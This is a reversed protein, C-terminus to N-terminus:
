GSSWLPLGMVGRSCIFNLASTVSEPSKLKGTGAYSLERPLCKTSWSHGSHRKIVWPSIILTRTKDNQKMKWSIFPQTSSPFRWSGLLLLRSNLRQLESKFFSSDPSIAGGPLISCSQVPGPASRPCYGQSRQGSCLLVEATSIQSPCVPDCQTGRVQWKM